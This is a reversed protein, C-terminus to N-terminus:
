RPLQPAHSRIYITVVEELESVVDQVEETDCSAELGISYFIHAEIGDALRRRTFFGSDAKNCDGKCEDPDGPDVECAFIAVDAGTKVESCSAPGEEAAENYLKAFARAYSEQQTTTLIEPCDEIALHREGEDLDGRLSRRRGGALLVKASSVLTVEEVFAETTTTSTTGEFKAFGLAPTTLIEAMAVIRLVRSLSPAM